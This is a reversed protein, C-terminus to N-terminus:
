IACAMEKSTESISGFQDKEQPKDKIVKKTFKPPAPPASSVSNLEIVNDAENVVRKMQEIYKKYKEFGIEPMDGEGDLILKCAALSAGPNENVENEMIQAAIEIARAKYKNRLEDATIHRSETVGSSKMILQIDEVTMGIMEAIQLDTLGEQRCRQIQVLAPNNM